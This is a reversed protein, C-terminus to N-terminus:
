LLYKFLLWVLGFFLAGGIAFVLIFQPMQWLLVAILALGLLFGAFFEFGMKSKIYEWGPDQEQETMEPEIPDNDDDKNEKM